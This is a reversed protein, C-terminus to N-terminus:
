KDKFLIADIPLRTFWINYSYHDNQSEETLLGISGDPMVTMSSYASPTTVVKKGVRWNKGNDESVFIAVDNRGKPDSPLSHLLIDKGNYTYRIIDGNCRPDPLSEVPIPESWTEGRDKSYSFKRLSGFRNRISMILSGDSLEAIKAEDGDESAPNSSVKWNYGGDDSYIAYVKFHKNGAQRTVLAFIIRGDALQVARGSSAFASTCKIPQSGLSDTTLIQRNIDVPKDWTVGNDHSRSVSIYAPSNQWLGNGHSFITILDGTHRDFVLAADGCGGVSDHAAVTVYPSWTMGGDLSRRCVIDIKAPLDGNHEIRKDAVAVLTGDSTSVIAPIRYFRSEYDGPCFVLSRRIGDNWEEVHNQQAVVHQGSTIIWCTLFLQYYFSKLTM